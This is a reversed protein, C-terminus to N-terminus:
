TKGQIEGLSSPDQIRQQKLWSNDQRRFEYRLEIRSALYIMSGTMVPREKQDYYTARQILGPTGEPAELMEAFRELLLESRTGYVVRHVETEPRSNLLELLPKKQLDPLPFRGAVDLPMYRNEIALPSQAIKKLRLIRFVTTEPPLNLETLYLQTPNPRVAVELPVTLVTIGQDAFSEELPRVGQLFGTIKKEAVFTGKGQVKTILGETVLRQFAIRATMRSVGYFQIIDTESPLPDGPILNKAKIYAELAESVQAYLPKYNGKKLPILDNFRNPL